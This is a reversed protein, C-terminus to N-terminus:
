YVPPTVIWLVRTIGRAANRFMHPLRSEFRFADGEGLRYTTGDVYLELRGRLVVGVEEGEHDYPEEGSGGGPELIVEMVQLSGEEDPTILEKVMAKAGFDLRRRRDARVIRRNDERVLSEPSEFLAHVPVDLMACIGRLARISPSSIGREIQSLLGISISAGDAVQKLSLGRARRIERVALGLAHDDDRATDFVVPSLAPDPTMPM